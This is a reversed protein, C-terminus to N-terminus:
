WGLLRPILLAIGPFIAVLIMGLFTVLYFPISQKVMRNIPVGTIAAASFVCVGYGPTTMGLAVCM